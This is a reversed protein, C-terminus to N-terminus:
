ATKAKVRLVAPPSFKSLSINCRSASRPQVYVKLDNQRLTLNRCAGCLKHKSIKLISFSEDDGETVVKKASADSDAVHFVKEEENM